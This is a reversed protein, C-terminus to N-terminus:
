NNIIYIDNEIVVVNYVNTFLEVLDDYNNIEEFMEIFNSENIETEIADLIHGDTIERKQFTNTAGNYTGLTIEQIEYNELLENFEDQTMDEYQQFDEFDKYYTINSLALEKYITM